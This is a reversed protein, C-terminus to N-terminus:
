VEHVSFGAEEGDPVALAGRVAELVREASTRRPDSVLVEDARIGAGRFERGLERLLVRAAAQGM